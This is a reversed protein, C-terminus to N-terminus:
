DVVPVLIENVQLMQAAEPAVTKYTTKAQSEFPEAASSDLELKEVGVKRKKSPTHTPPSVPKRKGGQPLPSREEDSSYDILDQDPDDLFSHGPAHLHSPTQPTTSTFFSHDNGHLTPALMGTGGTDHPVSPEGAGIEAQRSAEGSWEDVGQELSQETVDIALEQEYFIEGAAFAEDLDGSIALTEPGESEMNGAMNASELQFEGFEEHFMSEGGPELEALGAVETEALHAHLDLAEGMMDDGAESTAQPGSPKHADEPNESPDNDGMATTLGEGDDVEESYEDVSGEEPVSVEVEVEEVDPSLDPQDEALEAEGLLELFRQECDRRMILDFELEQADEPSTNFLASFCRLIDHFSRDLFKQNSKEGFELDLSDIRVVLEDEPSVEDSIVGRISALLQSLPADLDKVDSLFYSDPDDSPAGILSYQGQNYHVMIEPVDSALSTNSLGAPTEQHGGLRSAPTQAQDHQSRHTSAGDTTDASPDVSPGAANFMSMDGENPDDFEENEDLLEADAGAPMSLEPEAGATAPRAVESDTTDTNANPEEDEYGIEDHYEVDVDQGADHEVEAATNNAHKPDNEIAERVSEEDEYSIEFDATTKATTPEPNDEAQAEDEYAGDLKFDFDEVGADAGADLDLYYDEPDVQPDAVSLLADM